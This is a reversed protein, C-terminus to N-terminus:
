KTVQMLAKYLFHDDEELCDGIMKETIFDSLGKGTDKEWMELCDYVFSMVMARVTDDKVPERKELLECVQEVDHERPTRYLLWIAIINNKLTISTVIGRPLRISIKMHATIAIPVILTGGPACNEGSSEKDYGDKYPQGYGPPASFNPQSINKIIGKTM